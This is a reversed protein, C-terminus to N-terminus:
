SYYECLLTPSTFVKKQDIFKKLNERAYSVLPSIECICPENLMELKQVDSHGNVIGNM